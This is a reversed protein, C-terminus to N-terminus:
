VGILLYELSKSWDREIRSRFKAIPSEPKLSLTPIKKLSEAVEHLDDENPVFLKTYFRVTPRGNDSPSTSRPPAYITFFTAGFEKERRSIDPVKHALEKLQQATEKVSKIGLLMRAAEHPTQIMSVLKESDDSVQINADVWYYASPVLQRATPDYSKFGSKLYGIVPEPVKQHLEKLRGKITYNKPIRYIIRGNALEVSTDFLLVPNGGNSEIELEKQVNYQASELDTTKDDFTYRVM